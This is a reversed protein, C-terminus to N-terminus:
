EMVTKEREREREREREGVRRGGRKEYDKAGLSSCCM